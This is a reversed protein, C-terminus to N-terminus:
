LLVLLCMGGGSGRVDAFDTITCAVDAYHLATLVARYSSALVTVEYWTDPEARVLLLSLVYCTGASDHGVRAPM